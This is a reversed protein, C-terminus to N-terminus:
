DVVFRGREVNGRGGADAFRTDKLRDAGHRKGDGAGAIASESEALPDANVRPLRIGAEATRGAPGIVRCESILGDDEVATRRVAREYRPLGYPSSSRSEPHM